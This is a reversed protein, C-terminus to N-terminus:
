PGNLKRVTLKKTRRAPPQEEKDVTRICKIGSHPCSSQLSTHIHPKLEKTM